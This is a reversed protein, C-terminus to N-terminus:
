AERTSAPRPCDDDVIGDDNEFINKSEHFLPFLGREQKSRPVLSIPSATIAVVRESTIIKRGMAKM